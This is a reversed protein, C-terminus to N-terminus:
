KHISEMKQSILSQQTQPGRTLFGLVHPWLGFTAGVLALSESTQSLILTCERFTIWMIVWVQKYMKRYMM